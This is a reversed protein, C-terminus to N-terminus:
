GKRTTWKRTTWGVERATKKSHCSKCLGQLNEFTDQGGESRPIVHDVETAMTLKCMCCWPTRNFVMKRLRKWRATMYYPDPRKRNKPRAKRHRECYNESRVLQGCGGEGCPRLPLALIRRKEAIEATSAANPPNNTRIMRPSVPAVIPRM